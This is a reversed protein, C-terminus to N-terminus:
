EKVFKQVSTQGNANLELLYVGAALTSFGQINPHDADLNEGSLLRRGALDTLTYGFHTDAPLGTFVINFADKVPNPSISFSFGEFASGIVEVVESFRSMGDIDMQRLRYYSVENTANHDQFAYSSASETNGQGAVFGQSVFETESSRRREIEFGSNQSESATEWTLNVFQANVREASIDTYNVPFPPMVYGCGIFFNTIQNLEAITYGMNIGAQRFAIAADQQNTTSNTLMMGELFAMDTKTRGIADYIKMLCTAWIQGDTHIQGVLGGPYTAGYNTIRGNWFPNHGDWSFTYHYAADAPTWVAVSRSYSQCWYDGSGESLGNVQSLSGGTAWDHLGHGLEHLVVDTDEADDVGGEGFALRGNGGLYHSNDAGNLGHPDFRVGGAYQFPMLSIGLTTNIYRMSKDIHFYTHSGEFGDQNRNFIFNPSAQAFTGRNPNEFELISAYPGVLSYTGANLTIDLLTETSIEAQLSANTADNGDVYAGGYAVGATSLPDPDFVSGTGSAATAPMLPLTPADECDALNEAVPDPQLPIGNEDNKNAPGCYCSIDECKIIDGTAADILTEWEGLPAEAIQKVQWVLKTLENVKLVYLKIEDFDIRGNIGVYNTALDHAQQEDLSPIANFNTPIPKYGNLVYTIHQDPSINVVTESEYVQVGGFFQSFRLTTGALSSRSQRLTLDGLAPDVFGLLETHAMLFSRAALEADPSEAAERLNYLALPRNTWLSMRLNDQIYSPELTSLPVEFPLPTRPKQANLASIGFVLALVVHTFKKRMGKGM